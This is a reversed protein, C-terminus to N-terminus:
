GHPHEKPEDHQDRLATVDLAQTDTATTDSPTLADALTLVAGPDQTHSSTCTAAAHQAANLDAPTTVPHPHHVGHKCPTWATLPVAAAPNYTLAAGSPLAYRVTDDNQHLWGTIRTFSVGAMYAAYAAHIQTDSMFPRRERTPLTSTSDPIPAPISPKRPRPTTKKAPKKARTRTTM